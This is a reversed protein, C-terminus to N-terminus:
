ATVTQLKLQTLFRKGRAGILQFPLGNNDATSEQLMGAVLIFSKDQLMSALVATRHGFIGVINKGSFIHPRCFEFFSFFQAHLNDVLISEQFHNLSIRPQHGKTSHSLM